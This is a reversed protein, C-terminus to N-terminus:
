VHYFFDILENHETEMCWGVYDVCFVDFNNIDYAFFPYPHSVFLM